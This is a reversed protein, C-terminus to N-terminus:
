QAVVLQGNPAKYVPKGGSTRGTDTYGPPPAPRGSPAHAGEDVAGYLADIKAQVAAKLEPSRQVFGVAKYKAETDKKAAKLQSEQEEIIGGVLKDISRVFQKGEAPSGVIGSLKGEIQSLTGQLDTILHATMSTPAAGTLMRTSQERASAIAAKIKEPDRSAVASEIGEKVSRAQHLRNLPGPKGPTGKILGEDKAFMKEVLIEAKSPGAGGTGDAKARIAAVHQRQIGEEARHHRENEAAAVYLRKADDIIKDREFAYRANNAELAAVGEKNKSNAAMAKGQAIVAELAMAQQARYDAMESLMDKSLMQKQDIAIAVQKWLDAKEAQMKEFHMRIGDDVEKAAQNVHNADFSISGLFKAIGALILRRTGGPGEFLGTFKKNAAENRLASIKEDADLLDQKNLATKIRLDRAQQDRIDAENSAAIEEATRTDAMASAHKADAEAVRTAGAELSATPSVPPTTAVPAKPKGTPTVSSTAPPTQPPPEGMVPIAPVGISPAPPNAPPNVPVSAPIKNGDEPAHTMSQQVALTGGPKKRAEIAAIARAEEKRRQLEVEAAIEEHTPVGIPQTGGAGSIEPPVNNFMDAM